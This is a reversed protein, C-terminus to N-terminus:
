KRPTVDERHDQGSAHALPEKWQRPISRLRRYREAPAVADDVEDDVVEDIGAKQLQLDQRLELRVRQDLV